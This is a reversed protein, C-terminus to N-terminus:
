LLGKKEMVGYLTPTGEKTIIGKEKLRKLSKQCQGNKGDFHEVRILCASMIGRKTEDVVFVSYDSNICHTARPMDADKDDPWDKPTYHSLNNKGAWKCNERKIGEITYMKKATKTGSKKGFANWEVEKLRVNLVGIFFLALWEEIKDADKAKKGPDDIANYSFFKEAGAEQYPLFTVMILVSIVFPKLVRTNLVM